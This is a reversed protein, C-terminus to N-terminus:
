RIASPQIKDQLSQANLNLIFLNKSSAYRHLFSNETLYECTLDLSSYIDVNGDDLDISQFSDIFNFENKTELDGLKLVKLGDLLVMGICRGLVGQVVAARLLPSPPPHSRKWLM